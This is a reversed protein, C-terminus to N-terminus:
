LRIAIKRSITVAGANKASLSLTLTAQGAPMFDPVTVLFTEGTNGKLSALEEATKKAGGESKPLTMVGSLKGSISIPTKSGTPLVSLTYTFTTNRNAIQNLDKGIIRIQFSKGVRVSKIQTKSGPALFTMSDGIKTQQGVATISPFFSFAIVPLLLSKM